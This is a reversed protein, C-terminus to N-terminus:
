VMVALDIEKEVPCSEKEREMDMFEAEIGNRDSCGLDKVPLLLRRMDGVLSNATQCAQAPDAPVIKEDVRFEPCPEPKDCHQGVHRELSIIREFAAAAFAPLAELGARRLRYPLPTLVKVVLYTKLFQLFEPISLDDALVDAADTDLSTRAGSPFLSDPSKM